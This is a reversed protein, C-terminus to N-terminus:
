KQTLRKSSPKPGARSLLKYGWHSETTSFKKIQSNDIPSLKPKPIPSTNVERLVLVKDPAYRNLDTCGAMNMSNIHADNKNHKAPM